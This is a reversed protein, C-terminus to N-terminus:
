LGHSFEVDTHRAVYNEINHWVDGEDRIKRCYMCIPLLGQLQRVHALAEDLEAIRRHLATELSITRVGVRLRARLEAGNIPKTIYDDAGANLGTVVDTTGSRSTCLLLYIPRETLTERIRRCLAVGDLGPMMWDIVAMEIDAHEGLVRWAGEGDAATLVDYGWRELHAQLLRRAVRDDEALLVKM